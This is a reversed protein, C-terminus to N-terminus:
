GEGSGKQADALADARTYGKRYVPVRVAGGARILFGALATIPSPEFSDFAAPDKARGDRYFRPQGEGCPAAPYDVSFGARRADALSLM